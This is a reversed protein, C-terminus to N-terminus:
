SLVAGGDPSSSVAEHAATKPRRAAMAREEQTPTAGAADADTGLPATAPDPHDIKDGDLGRDIQIRVMDTSPPVDRKSSAAKKHRQM